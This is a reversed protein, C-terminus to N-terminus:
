PSMLVTVADGEPDLDLSITLIRGDKEFILFASDDLLIAEETLAWGEKLMETEYFAFVDSPPQNTRYSVLDDIVTIKHADEVVPYDSPISCSEPMEIPTSEDLELVDFEMSFIGTEVDRQPHFQTTGSATLDIRRVFGNDEAIFLFGTVTLGSDLWDSRASQDFSYTLTPAGNVVLSEAILQAGSIGSVYDNALSLPDFSEDGGAPRGICGVSPLVLYSEDGIWVMTMEELEEQGTFGQAAIDLRLAAPNRSVSRQGTITWYVAEGSSNEGTFQAQMKVQHNDLDALNAELSPFDIVNAIRGTEPSPAPLSVATSTEPVTSRPSTESQPTSSPVVVQDSTLGDPEADGKCGVLLLVSSILIIM